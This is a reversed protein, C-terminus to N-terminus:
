LLVVVLRLLIKIVFVIPIYKVVEKHGFIAMLIAGACVIMAALGVFDSLGELVLKFCEYPNQFIWMVGKCFDGISSLANGGNVLLSSTDSPVSKTLELTTQKIMETPMVTTNQNEIIAKANNIISPDNIVKNMNDIIQQNFKNQSNIEEIIKNSEIIAKNFTDFDSQFPNLKTLFGFKM